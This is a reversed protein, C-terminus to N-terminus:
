SDADGRQLTYVNVEDCIGRIQTKQPDTFALTSHARGREEIRESVVISMPQAVGCLRAALNVTVGIVSYDLHEESGINGILTKGAHIGIGLRLPEHGAAGAERRTVDMIDLAQVGRVVRLVM